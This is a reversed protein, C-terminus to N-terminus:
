FVLGKLSKFVLGIGGMTFIAGIVESITDFVKGFTTSTNVNMIGALLYTVWYGVMIMVVGGVTEKINVDGELAM